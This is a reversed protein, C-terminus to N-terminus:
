NTYYARLNKVAFNQYQSEDYKSSSFKLQFSTSEGKALSYNLRNNDGGLKFSYSDDTYFDAEVYWVPTINKKGTNKVTGKVFLATGMNTKETITFEVTKIVAVDDSGTITSGGDGCGGSNLLFFASVFLVIHKYM